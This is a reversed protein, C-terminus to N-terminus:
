KPNATGGVSGPAAAVASPQAYLPQQLLSIVGAPKDANALLLSVQWEQTPNLVKRYSPMGTLRIGNDVKWFTEGPPDDSVGVVGHGHPAWLQPAEPYMNGGFSSAAPYLGHCAACQERYIAAGAQLNVPSPEIPAAKPSEADIRAHLPIEVVPEELPFPRDAVAVPPHGFRLYLLAAVPILLVGLILGVLFGRMGLGEVIRSISAQAEEDAASGFARAESDSDYVFFIAGAAGKRRFDGARRANRRRL